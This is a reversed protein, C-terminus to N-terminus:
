LKREINLTDTQTGTMYTLTRTHALTSSPIHFHIERRSMLSLGDIKRLPSAAILLVNALYIGAIQEVADSRYRSCRLSLLQRM